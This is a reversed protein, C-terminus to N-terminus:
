SRNNLEPWRFGCAYGYRYVPHPVVGKTSQYTPRVDTLDGPPVRVPTIFSGEDLFYLRKRLQAPADPSRLWGGVSVLRYAAQDSSLVGPLEEESPHYRSLLYARQGPKMEEGLILERSGELRFSGYGSSREGGLGDDQLITVAKDFDQPTFSANPNVWQVGFWLGCGEAFFVKGAQYITSSSSTRTITVRPVPNSSWVDLRHLAHRRNEPLEFSKPFERMEDLHFWLAGGQLSAGTRPEAPEEKPFLYNDLREGLLAKRLLGESFFQIRRLEKGREEFVEPSFLQHLDVPMPFFRVNGVIPFASTLLFPPSGEQGTFGKFLHELNNGSRRWADAIASFITDSPITVSVEELGNGRGVHLGGSFCLPFTILKPM